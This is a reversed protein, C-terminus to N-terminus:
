RAHGGDFAARRDHVAAFGASSRASAPTAGDFATVWGTLFFLGLRPVIGCTQGFAKISLTM